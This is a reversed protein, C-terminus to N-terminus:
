LLHTSLLILLHLHEQGTDEQVAEAALEVNVARHRKEVFGSVKCVTAHLGKKDLRSGCLRGDPHRHQCTTGEEFIDLELRWRLLVVFEQDLM